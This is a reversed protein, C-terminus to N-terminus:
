PRKYMKLAVNFIEATQYTVNVTFFFFLYIYKKFHKMQQIKMKWNLLENMWEWDDIKHLLVHKHKIVTDNKAVIIHLYCKRYCCM